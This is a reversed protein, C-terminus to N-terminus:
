QITINVTGSTGFSPTYGVGYWSWQSRHGYGSITTTQQLFYADTRNLTASGITLSTWGSNSIATNDSIVFQIQGVIDNHSLQSIIAGSQISNVSRNALSGYSTSFMGSKTHDGYGYYVGGYSASNDFSGITMTTSLIASSAGYFSSFTMQSNAAASVLGRIDSDNMSALSVAVV